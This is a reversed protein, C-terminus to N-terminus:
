EELSGSHRPDSSPTSECFSKTLRALRVARSKESATFSRWDSLFRSADDWTLGLEDHAFRTVASQHGHAVHSDLLQVLTEIQESAGAALFEQVNPPLCSEGFQNVLVGALSEVLCMVSDLAQETRRHRAALIPIGVPVVVM